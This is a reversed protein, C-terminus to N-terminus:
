GVWRGAPRGVSLSVSQSVEHLQTRRLFGDTACRSFFEAFHLPVRLSMGHESFSGGAQRRLWIFGTSV